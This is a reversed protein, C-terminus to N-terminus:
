HALEVCSQEIHTENFTQLGTEMIALTFANEAIQATIWVFKECQETVISGVLLM